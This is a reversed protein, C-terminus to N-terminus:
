DGRSKAEHDQHELLEGASRLENLLMVGSYSAVNMPSLANTLKEKIIHGEEDLIWSVISIMKLEILYELVHVLEPNDYYNTASPPNM